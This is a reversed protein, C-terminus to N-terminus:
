WTALALRKWNNNGASHYIFDGDSALQGNSGDSSPTSPYYMSYDYLNLFSIEPLESAEISIYGLGQNQKSISLLNNKSSNYSFSIEGM